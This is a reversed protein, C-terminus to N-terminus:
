AYKITEEKKVKDVKQFIALLGLVEAPVAFPARIDGEMTMMNTNNHLLVVNRLSFGNVTFWEILFRPQVVFYSTNIPGTLSGVYFYYGGLQLRHKMSASFKVPDTSTSAGDLDLIIPFCKNKAKGIVDVMPVITVGSAEIIAKTEKELLEPRTVLMELTSEKSVARVEQITSLLADIILKQM